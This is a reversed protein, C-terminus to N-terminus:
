DAVNTIEAKNIKQPTHVIHQLQVQNWTHIQSHYISESIIIEAKKKKVVFSNLIFFCILSFSLSFYVVIFVLQLLLKEFIM